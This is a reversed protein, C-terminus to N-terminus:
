HGSGDDLLVPPRPSSRGWATNSGGAPTPGPPVSTTITGASSSETGGGGIPSRSTTVDVTGSGEGAAPAAVTSSTISKAAHRYMSKEPM